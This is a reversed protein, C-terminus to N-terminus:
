SVKFTPNYLKTIVYQDVWEPATKVAKSFDLKYTPVLILDCASKSGLTKILANKAEVIDEPLTRSAQVQLEIGHEPYKFTGTKTPTYGILELLEAEIEKRDKNANTEILKLSKWRQKLENIKSM